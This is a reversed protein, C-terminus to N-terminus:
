FKATCRFLPATSNHSLSPSQFKLNSPTRIEGLKTKVFFPSYKSGLYSPLPLGRFGALYTHIYQVELFTIDPLVIVYSKGIRIHLKALERCLQRCQRLIYNNTKVLHWIFSATIM